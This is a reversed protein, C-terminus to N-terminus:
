SRQDLYFRVGLSVELNSRRGSIPSRNNYYAGDITLSTNRAIRSNGFARASWYRFRGTGLGASGTDAFRAEFGIDQRDNLRERFTAGLSLAPRPGTLANQTVTKQGTFCIDTRANKTCLSVSGAPTITTRFEGPFRLKNVAVGAGATLTWQAWLTKTLLIQPQTVVSSCTRQSRCEYKLVSISAGVSDRSNLLRNYSTSGGYTAYDSGGFNGSQRSSSAFGDIGVRNNADLQHEIGFNTSLLRQRTRFGNLTIDPVPVDGPLLGLRFLDLETAISDSYSLSSKIQSRANLRWNGRASAIVSQSSPYIRTYETHRVTGTLAFSGAAETLTFTPSLAASVAASSTDGADILYPNTSEKATLAGTVTLDSRAHAVTGTLASFIAALGSWTARFIQPQNLLDRCTKM